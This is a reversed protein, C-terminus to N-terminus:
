VGDGPVEPDPDAGAPVIGFDERVHTIYAAKGAAILVDGMMGNFEGAALQALTREIRPGISKGRLVPGTWHEWETHWVLKGNHSPSGDASATFFVELRGGILVDRNADDYVRAVDGAENIRLM